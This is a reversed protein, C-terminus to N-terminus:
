ALPANSTSAVSFAKGLSTCATKLGLGFEGLMDKKHSRGLIMAEHIDQRDMGAGDDAVIIENKSMSVSVHLLEGEVRADIANDLLEAIAQPISYGAKGLKPMLTQDPTIDIIETTSTM